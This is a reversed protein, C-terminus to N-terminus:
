GERRVANSRAKSQNSRYSNGTLQPSFAVCVSNPTLFQRDYLRWCRAEKTSAGLNILHMESFGQLGCRLRRDGGQEEKDEVSSALPVTDVATICDDVGILILRVAAFGTVAGFIAAERLRGRWDSVERVGVRPTLGRLFSRRLSGVDFIAADWDGPILRREKRGLEGLFDISVASCRFGEELVLRECSWALLDTPLFSGSESSESSPCRQLDM